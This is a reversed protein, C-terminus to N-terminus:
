EVEKAKDKVKSPISWPKTFREKKDDEVFFSENEKTKWLSIERNIKDTLNEETLGNDESEKKKIEPRVTEEKKELKLNDESVSREDKRGNAGKERAKIKQVKEELLKEYSSMNMLVFSNSPEHSDYVIVKDGTKKILEFVKKLDESFM